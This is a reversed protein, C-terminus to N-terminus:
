SNLIKLILSKRRSIKCREALIISKLEEVANSFDDNIILYQYKEFANIELVANKMRIFMQKRDETKRHSLRFKLEQMSPPVVFIFVGDSYIKKLRKAGYIDIDLLCDIGNEIRESIFEKSTGYYNGHVEAWEIFKGDRIMKKFVDLSIYFYDEGEKEGNRKTRTTYSVSYALDSIISRIEKCISSKGAGSPASIIFPIGMCSHHYM